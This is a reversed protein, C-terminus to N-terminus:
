PQDAGDTLWALSFRVFKIWERRHKEGGEFLLGIEGDPLHVMMSYSSPGAHILKKVPWTQGEDYSLRVTMRTRDLIGFREGTNDPNAFLIRDKNENEAFSYRVICAQCPCENLARDWRVPSWSEGGNKSIAVGRCSKGMNGRMNLMLTGDKLEIVQCEDSLEGVSRSQTWSKGHDDSYIVCSYFNEDLEEDIDGTYGPIVLRGNHLQIGIGPGPVFSNDLSKGVEIIDSWTKGNDDSTLMLQRHHNPGYKHADICFLLIRNNTRDIVPCPNMLAEKDIGQILV